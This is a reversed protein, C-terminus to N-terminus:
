CGMTRLTVAAHSAMMSVTKMAAYSRGVEGRALRDIPPFLHDIQPAGSCPEERLDLRRIRCTFRQAIDGVRADCGCVSVYANTAPPPLIKEREELDREAFPECRHRPRSRFLTTYPFLTSRPPRRIM